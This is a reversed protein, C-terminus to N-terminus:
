AMADKQSVHDCPLSPLHRRRSREYPPYAVPVDPGEPKLLIIEHNVQRGSARYRSFFTYHSMNDRNSM